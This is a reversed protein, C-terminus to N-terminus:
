IKKLEAIKSLFQDIEEMNKFFGAYGVHSAPANRYYEWEEKKNPLLKIAEKKEIGFYEAFRNIYIQFRIGEKASSEEPILSFITNRSGNMNGMFVFSSRTTGTYDFYRSLEDVFRRYLSGVEQQDAIGLLAEPTLNPKRKTSTKTDSSYEVQSPEILFVRALFEKEESEQFYQFTAANINVGYSNSLYKIIRESSADIDSGLILIKHRSNLIDPLELDFRNKFARELPGKNKLYENAIDTIKENSLDNVWSAYDLAQATIERPTKDRKLEVVVIDGNKDLCVLDIFGGFDTKVQRGIVLLENSLMSIDKELWNELREESKLISKEIETLEHGDIRWIKIDQPM